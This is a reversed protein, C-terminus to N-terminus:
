ALRDFEDHTVIKHKIPGKHDVQEMMDLLVGPSLKPPPRYHKPVVYQQGGSTQTLDNRKKSGVPVQKWNFGTTNMANGASNQSM